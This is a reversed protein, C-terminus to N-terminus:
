IRWRSGVLAEELFHSWALDRLALPSITPARLETLGDPRRIVDKPEVGLGSFESASSLQENMLRTQEYEPPDKQKPPPDMPRCIMSPQQLAAARGTRRTLFFSSM